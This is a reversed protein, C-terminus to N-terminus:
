LSPIVYFYLYIMVCSRVFFRLIFSFLGFLGRRGEDTLMRSREIRWNVEVEAEVQVVGGVPMGSPKERLSVVSLLTLNM